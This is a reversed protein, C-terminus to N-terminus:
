SLLKLQYKWEQIMETHTEIEKDTLSPNAEHLKFDITDTMYTSIEMISDKNSDILFSLLAMVACGANLAYSGDFDGFDDMDPTVDSVRGCHDQL